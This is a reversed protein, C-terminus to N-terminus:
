GARKADRRKRLQDMPDVAAGAGEMAEALTERLAKTLTAVAGGPEHGSSIREALVLATLGLPTEHRNAAALYVRTSEVLDSAGPQPVVDVVVPAPKGGAAHVRARCRGSCFRSNKRKAEYPKGCGDCPRQM